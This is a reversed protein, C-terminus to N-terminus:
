ADGAPSTPELRILGVELLQKLLEVIDDLCEEVTVDFNRTVGSVIEDVRMPTRILDLVFGGVENLTYYTGSSSDFIVVADDMKSHLLGHAASVTSSVTVPERPEEKMPAADADKPGHTM